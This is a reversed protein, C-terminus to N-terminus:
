VSKRLVSRLPQGIKEVHRIMRDILLLFCHCLFEVENCRLMVFALCKICNPFQLTADEVDSPLTQTDKPEVLDSDCCDLVITLLDILKLM